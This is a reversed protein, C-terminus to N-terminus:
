QHLKHIPPYISFLAKTAAAATIHTTSHLLLVFFGLPVVNIAFGKNKNHHCESIPVHSAQSLLSGHM